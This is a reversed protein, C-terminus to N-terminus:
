DQDQRGRKWADPDEVLEDWTALNGGYMAEEFDEREWRKEIVRNSRRKMFYAIIVLFAGAGLVSSPTIAGWIALWWLSRRYIDWFDLPEMGAHARMSDGFSMDRLGMVVAWFKEEGIEDLLTRTMSLSQAYADGFQMNSAPMALASDLVRYEIVRGEFFMRAVSFSSQWRFENALMMAIGENLWHPLRDTNTNRHLLVHVLEHRLTGQFDTGVPTLGAAKVVILNRSAHAVGNVELSALSGAQARFAEDSEAIVVRIPEEGLPLRKEWEAAAAPLVEAAIQALGEDKGAAVITFTGASVELAAARLSCALLLLLFLVPRKFM